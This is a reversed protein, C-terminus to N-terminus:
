AFYISHSKGSKGTHTGMETDTHLSVFASFHFMSLLLIEREIYVKLLLYIFFM